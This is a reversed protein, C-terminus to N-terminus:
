LCNGNKSCYPNKETKKREEIMLNRDKKIENREHEKRNASVEEIRTSPCTV